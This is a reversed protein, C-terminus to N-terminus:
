IRKLFLVSLPPLTVVLSNAHGHSPISISHVGGSNGMNSGGYVASDTNILERYYGDQPVGVRYEYRPVPTFNCLCVIQDTPDKAKRLFAIVSHQADNFDIWQFGSWEHDVEHLAREHQHLWNLDRVLRQLGAHPEFQCLHWELSTDHNWENWQGFEGGMFLMKKGPHSHMYGYLARLNAFRQWPDGPMKDLLARKGHVVEDHSLVLVFNETFAYLLGFTLHNHHYMRHVPDHSFYNLMDHMWGMNWKFTFGLGGVYTPRSVGPWATSEEALTMAGPHERHILVNLDKLFTVAGINEHGGFQNPIWEGAKRGYDLYLMSAVADVRLGDIHYTDLWFLASNLLFNRVETRDYNFIRSHWDPHYGLRPDAHDYLHTGDFQSLGHPDDPFHAPSWDMLVGLNAQHAADVFAMFDEPSGYRSTAAFYGTSQYGWSGDFPHESVPMLELHTYGMDKAYPILKSALERYTLWRNQDEPVRMWSGLHVEYISLPTALPDRQAREVMWPGDNWQYRSINHVISATRPRLEAAFAYPDAKLLPADQGRSRIEYKYTANAPLEPIFLEWLGTAGRNTMPHRRGDWQNFDGVVSVRRANPAWVVFHVGSIGQVTRLHAGMTNYAKFFTGEAFLHLEFDTLLPAFAYPDHQERVRGSYDTIRLRYSLKEGVGPCLIEFLGADHIRKMPIAPQKQGEILVEVDQADPLFCRIAFGTSGSLSAPHPGLISLPDWHNGHVLQDVQELSLQPTLM